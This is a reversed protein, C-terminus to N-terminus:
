YQCCLRLFSNRRFLPKDIKCKFRLLKFFFKSVKFVKKASSLDPNWIIQRVESFGQTRIIGFVFFSIPQWTVNTHMLADLWSDHVFYLPPPLSHLIQTKRLSEKIKLNRGSRLLFLSSISANERSNISLFDLFIRVLTWYLCGEFLALINSSYRWLKGAFGFCCIFWGIRFLKTFRRRWFLQM